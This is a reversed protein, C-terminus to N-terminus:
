YHYYHYYFYYYYCYGTRLLWGALWGALWGSCGTIQLWDALRGIWGAWNLGAWAVLWAALKITTTIIISTIIIAITM